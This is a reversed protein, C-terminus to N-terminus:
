ESQTTTLAHNIQTGQALHHERPDTQGVHDQGLIQDIGEHDAIGFKVPAPAHGLLRRQGFEDILPM